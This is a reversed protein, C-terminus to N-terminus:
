FFNKKKIELDILKKLQKVSLYDKNDLSNYSFNPPFKKKVKKNYYDMVKKNLPNLIAYYKKLDYTMHSDSTTILEEHIKEGPRIGIVTQERNPDIAKALDTIKYSPIKPVFIEGGQSNNLAWIVMKVSDELNINFRTMDKSTIPFPLNSKKIKMFLPMVSGRSFMVNGYRVVSFKFKNDGAYNNASSFIKDSCLKTAGYLNIPAAAKDTSLAIVKKINNEIAVDVINQAGIINTKIFEFANYESAEVHKLAAAHIICDINKVAKNLRTLDRVDGLFFRLQPYKKKPYIKQMEFQKLEDRSFIVIRKIRKYKKLLYQIFHQGFSGTGGTILISKINM